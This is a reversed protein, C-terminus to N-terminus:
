LNAMPRHTSLVAAAARLHDPHHHAYIATSTALSEHGLFLQIQRMDVGAAALWTAATHRLTHPSVGPLKARVASRAFAKKISRVRQRNYEIVFRTQAIERAETLAPLLEDNIPLTIRRKSTQRRGPPNFAILRRDFDIQSWQLELIANRRAATHLAILVFLRVHYSTCAALLRDAETYSLWRDKPAPKSPM